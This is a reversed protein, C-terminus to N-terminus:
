KLARCEGDSPGYKLVWVEEVASIFIRLTVEREVDGHMSGCLVGIAFELPICYLRLTPRGLGTCCCCTRM